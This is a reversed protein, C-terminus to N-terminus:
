PKSVECSRAIFVGSFALLVECALGGRERVHPEVTAGALWCVPEPLWVQEMNPTTSVGAPQAAM